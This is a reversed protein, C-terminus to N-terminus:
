VIIKSLNGYGEKELKLSLEYGGSMVIRGDMMVHVRDPRVHNLIRQYHTILLIAMDPNRRRAENLAEGVIRVADIDLGSDIEDLIALKPKLTLLQAVESRKKEGGSFGLNIERDIFEGMGLASYNERLLKRFEVPSVEGGLARFARWMMQSVRVGEIEYPYQFALFIGLKAREDPSLGLISKGEFLVDGDLVEYAPHGMLVAALTSKGSGNPGMIAHTEGRNVTLNIGKLILKGDVAVKLNEIRLLEM